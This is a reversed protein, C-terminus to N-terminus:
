KGLEETLKLAERAIKTLHGEISSQMEILAADKKEILDILARIQEALQNCTFHKGDRLDYGFVNGTQLIFEAEEKWKDLKRVKKM